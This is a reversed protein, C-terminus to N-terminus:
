NTMAPIIVGGVFQDRWRTWIGGQMYNAGTFVVVLDYEPVVILLQGGNGNAEYEEVVRDGVHVGFRHWAYGDVGPAYFNQFEEESLGTTTPSIEIRPSTSREVWERSVIRRGRWVGGDLYMQGVKLLDRPLMHAGGGLYGEGNPMVNWYYRGFQLPRAITRDFLEPLSQHTAANLAGGVLNLNASCYAYREGPEHAQPLNLTYQWFNPNSQTWLRGENGPSHEDNDNCALGSTHTLLHAITMNQRRPDPHEFPGLGAMLEYVRTEPAIPAGSEMAAGLMISAFTKGASRIDHPTDRTFGHFYEELVLRGRHAVLVSHILNPRRASPDADIISQVMTTLAAEDLGVSRARATRWGDRIQPPRRYEYMPEGSPRPTFNILEAASARRWDIESGIDPWFIRIRDPDRLRAGTRRVDQGDDFRALFTITEGDETVRFQSAGGRSNIEHNRFAALLNGEADRFIRLYVTFRGDLPQVNALWANHGSSRLVLPTAFSQSAATPDDREEADSNPQIWVGSMAGGRGIEARLVGNVGFAFRLSGGEVRADASRGALLARWVDGDRTIQADGRLTPAFTREVIWVGELDSHAVQAVASSGLLALGMVLSKLLHM